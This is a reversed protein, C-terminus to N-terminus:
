QLEGLGTLAVGVPQILCAFPKIDLIRVVRNRLAISKTHQPLSRGIIPNNKPTFISRYRWFNATKPHKKNIFLTNVQDTGLICAGPRAAHGAGAADLASVGPGGAAHACQVPLPTIDGRLRDFVGLSKKSAGTAM